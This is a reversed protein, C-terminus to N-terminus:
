PMFINVTNVVLSFSTKAFWVMLGTFLIGEARQNLNYGINALSVILNLVQMEPMSGSYGLFAYVGCMGVIQQKLICAEETLIAIVHVNDLKVLPFCAFSVHLSDTSCQPVGIMTRDFVRFNLPLSHYAPLGALM